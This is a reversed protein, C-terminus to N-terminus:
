REELELTFRFQQDPALLYSDYLPSYSRVQVTKGDPLFELLRMYGEGGLERMQYNALMQHCLTGADTRLAKYGTGDGLAHGNLTIVFRHNKVLKDWLEAGDNVGGPTDYSHPNFNQNQGLAHDYWEDDNNMYAHTILIGLRDGHEAMVDNAWAVVEDRPGWELAVVVWATGGAEFLHYSNDLKGQEFAGGFSPLARTEEFDFYDNLLTDRTSADGSPGYDHNGPVLAYPVTGDLAAMAGRAREWELPSNNNVVDGLHFLYRVNLSAANRAVWATQAEFLGPFRLSYVQTDPLAAITWSGPTWPVEELEGTPEVAAADRQRVADVREALNAYFADAFAERAPGDAVPKDFPMAGLIIRGQGYAGELLLPNKGNAEGALVVEFGDQRNFAEWGVRTGSWALQGGDLPIGTLLDNDARIVHAGSFDSEGRLAGHTSPLFPPEPEQEDAQTLQVLVNAEDVFRYLDGANRAMYEAYEPHTSAFSGLFILGELGWPSRDLPLPQVDFGAAELRASADGTAQTHEDEVELVYAPIAPGDAACGAVLALSLTYRVYRSTM